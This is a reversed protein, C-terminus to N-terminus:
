KIAVLLNCLCTHSAKIISNTTVNNCCHYCCILFCGNTSYFSALLANQRQQRQVQRKVPSCHRRQIKFLSLSAPSIHQQLTERVLRSGKFGGESHTELVAGLNFLIFSLKGRPTRAGHSHTLPFDHSAEKKETLVM